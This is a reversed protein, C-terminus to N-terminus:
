NFFLTLWTENREVRLSAHDGPLVQQVIETYFARGNMADDTFVVVGDGTRPCGIVFNSADDDFGWQWGFVPSGLELGWGAGWALETDIEWQPRWREDGLALVHGLFLGFDHGTTRLPRYGHFGPEPEDFVTARMGLPGFVMEAALADIPQGTLQELHQQLLVFGEGSYGWQLGPARLPTLHEGTRWNPLGTTHSLVHRTTIAHFIPADLDEVLALALHGTVLKVLSAAKMPEDVGSTDALRFGRVVGTSYRM